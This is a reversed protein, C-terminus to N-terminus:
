PAVLDPDLKRLRGRARNHPYLCDAFRLYVYKYLRRAAILDDAEMYDDARRILERAYRDRPVKHIEQFIEPNQEMERIREAAEKAADSAPFEERILLYEYYAYAYRKKDQYERAKEMHDKADIDGKAKRLIKNKSLEVYRNHIDENVDFTGFNQEFDNFCKLADDLKKSGLYRRVKELTQSASREIAKIRSEAKRAFSDAGREGSSRSKHALEEYLEYAEEYKKEKYAENATEELDQLADTVRQHQLSEIHEKANDYTSGKLHIRKKRTAPAYETEVGSDTYTKLERTFDWQSYYVRLVRRYERIARSYEKDREYELGRDYYRKQRKKANREWERNQDKQEEVTAAPALVPYAGCFVVLSLIFLAFRKTPLKM